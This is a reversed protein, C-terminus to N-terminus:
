SNVFIERVRRKFSPTATESSAAAILANVMAPPLAQVDARRESVPDTPLGLIEPGAGPGAAAGTTVPRSDQSQAGLGVVRSLDLPVPAGAGGSPAGSAGAMPAAATLNQLEINEGYAPANPDM